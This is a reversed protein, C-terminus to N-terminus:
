TNYYLALLRKKAWKSFSTEPYRKKAWELLEYRTKYPCYKYPRFMQRLGLKITFLGSM